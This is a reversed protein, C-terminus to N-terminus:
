LENHEPTTPPGVEVGCVAPTGVEMRYVCKEEEVVKWIEDKEACALIVQTSRNPGNWCHQGNEYKLAIRNGSGLGRGDPAVEDDVTVLEIRVFSGLRTHGGGKKSKQTVKELFCHEYTYEGSDQSVCTSALARFISDPGYDKLLDEEHRKLESKDDDLERTASKLQAKASTVATSEPSDSNPDALVGNEILLLRLDRLKADVWTRISAPLYEEFQFLLDVDTEEVTEFEEWKIASESDDRLIEDLDRDRAVDPGTRDQAAYDEWAKVARKVGEDNFNPNYEEKFRKLMAELEEVRGQAADRESRVRNVNEVIERIREKALGALVTVKGGGGAGRVIKGKEAREIEVLSRTLGEVKQTQGEIQTQLTKIRDEVELQLRAAEAVLEKRRQRAANMSKQRIEEQKKWEKGIKACRDDCKVGGIGAYEDSGDCCLEHDCKGDNVHTFPIYSPMHGKNKCYFGPLSLNDGTQLQPPSLPSIYSCASTGPEDSGDPCDCYDDNVRAFPIKLSPDSICTFTDTDKYYKAYEPGVGRPRAADSAANTTSALIPLLLALSSLHQRGMKM